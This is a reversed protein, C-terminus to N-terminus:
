QKKRRLGFVSLVGACLLTLGIWLFLQTEDGTKVSRLGSTSSQQTSGSQKTSGTQQTNGPQGSNGTQQTNGTQGSSGPQQTNGPQGSSGPQETDDPQEPKIPDPDTPRNQAGVIGTVTEFGEGEITVTYVGNEGNVFATCNFNVAGTDAHFIDTAYYTPAVDHAMKTTYSEEAVAGNEDTYSITITGVTELYDAVTEGNGGTLVLSNNEIAVKASSTIVVRGASTGAVTVDLNRGLENYAETGGASDDEISYTTNLVTVRYVLESDSESILEVTYDTDRTLVDAFKGVAYALTIDSYDQGKAPNKVTVTFPTGEPYYIAESLTYVTNGVPEGQLATNIATIIAKSSCTAMSVADVGFDGASKGSIQERIGTEARYSYQTNNGSAGSVSIDDIAGDKVTVTVTIYYFNFDERGDTADDPDVKVTATYNGDALDDPVTIMDSSVSSGSQNGVIGVLMDFGNAEINIKYTGEAGDAFKDSDFNVFGAENFFDSIPVPVAGHTGAISYGTGNISISTIEAFYDELTESGGVVMLKNDEITVSSDSKITLSGVTNGACSVTMLQGLVNYKGTPLITVTVENKMDDWEATYDTNKEFTGNTKGMSYEIVVDTYDVNDEPNKVQITFATGNERDYIASSLVFSRPDSEVPGNALADQVAAWLAESSCTAGSVVDIGTSGNNIQAILNLGTDAGPNRLAKTAFSANSTDIESSYDIDTVSGDSVTVVVQIEYSAFRGSSQVTATGVYIGDEYRSKEGQGDDEEKSDEGKGDEGKGGVTGIVTEFGNAAVTITYNGEEGDPFKNSGFNVSGDANFFDSIQYTTDVGKRETIPYDKEDVSVDTIRAIYDAVTEGNGGTLVLTNDEIMVAASSKIAITGLENEHFSVTLSQGPTNYGGTPLVTVLLKGDSGNWVVSYDTGKELTGSFRGASYGVTIDTYDVGNQPNTVEIVFSTGNPSYAATEASLSVIADGEFDDVVTAEDMAYADIGKEEDQAATDTNMYTGEQYVADEEAFASVPLMSLLMTSSILASLLKKFKM